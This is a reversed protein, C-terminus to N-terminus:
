STRALTKEVFDPDKLKLKIFREPTWGMQQILRQEKPSLDNGPASRPEPSSRPISPDIRVPEVNSSHNSTALTRAKNLVGILDEISTLGDRNLFKLEKDLAAKKLGGPDNEPHFDKNKAFFEEQAKDWNKSTQKQEESRLADAIKKDVDVTSAGDQVKKLRLQKLEEVVADLQAKPVMESNNDAVPVIPQNQTEGEVKIPDAM